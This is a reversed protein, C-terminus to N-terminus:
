EEDSLQNQVDELMQLAEGVSDGLYGNTKNLSKQVDRLYVIAESLKDIAESSSIEGENLVSKIIEKLKSKRMKHEKLGM